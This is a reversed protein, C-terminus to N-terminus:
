TLASRCAVPLSAVSPSSCMLARGLVSTQAGFVIRGSEDATVARDGLVEPAGGCCSAEAARAQDLEGSAALTAAAAYRVRVRERIENQESM